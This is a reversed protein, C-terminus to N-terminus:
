LVDQLVDVFLQRINRPAHHHHLSVPVALVLFLGSAERKVLEHPMYFPCYFVNQSTCNKIFCQQLM